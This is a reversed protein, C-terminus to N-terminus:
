QGLAAGPGRNLDGLGDKLFSDASATPAAFACRSVGVRHTDPAKSSLIFLPLPGQPSLSLPSSRRRSRGKTGRGLAAEPQPSRSPTRLGTGHLSLLEM